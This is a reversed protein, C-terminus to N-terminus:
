PGESPARTGEAHQRQAHLHGLVGGALQALHPHAAIDSVSLVGTLAGTDDIVLLRRVGVRRMADAAAHLSTDGRIAHAQRSMVDGVRATDHNAGRVAPRLALDRDTVVGVLREGERVPLFGVRRRAMEAAAQRLTSSAAVVYAHPSMIEAVVM